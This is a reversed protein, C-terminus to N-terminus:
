WDNITSLLNRELTTALRGFRVGRSQLFGHSGGGSTGRDEGAGGDGEGEGRGREGRRGGSGDEVGAAGRRDVARVDDDELVALRVAGAGVPEGPAVAAADVPAATTPTRTRSSLPDPVVAPTMAPTSQAVAFAAGPRDTALRLRPPPALLVRSAATRRDIAAPIGYVM